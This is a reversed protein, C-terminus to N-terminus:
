DPLVTNPPPPKRTILYRATANRTRSHPLWSSTHGDGDRTLLVAGPIQARVDQAWVYPTSPDHTANVLLIPPAGHVHARHPPDAVPEPWNMCGILASWAEAFGQTHPAVVRGLLTLAALDSYRRIPPAFELCLVALGPFPDDRSSTALHAAFATADGAQAQALAQALGAWGPEGLAPIPDKLLLLNYANLQIDSGSVTRRCPHHACGPAPIPHQDAHQVLQDYVALVDQGHLACGTTQACWAAFRTLADEYGRANDTFLTVPSLAHDLIGDLAMTRIHRPFREAYAVGLDAGYSLGLFNLKGDGLARRLAEMDRAVSATDVHGLLPGSRRRCSRGLARAWASLHRFQARTRPVLSAQRNFVGPQLRGAHEARDRTPGHRDPRLPPAAGAAVPASRSGGAGRRQQGRRGAWRSQRHPERRPAQPRRGAASRVRPPDQPGASPPLGTARRTARVPPEAATRTRLRALPDDVAGLRSRRVGARGRLRDDCGCRHEEDVKPRARGTTDEGDGAGRRQPASAVRAARRACVGGASRHLNKRPSGTSAAGSRAKGGAAPRRGRQPLRVVRAASQREPPDEVGDRGCPLPSWPPTSRLM